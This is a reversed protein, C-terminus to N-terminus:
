LEIVNLFDYKALSVDPLCDEPSEGKSEEIAKIEM